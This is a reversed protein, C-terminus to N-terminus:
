KYDQDSPVRSKLTALLATAVELAQRTSLRAYSDRKKYGPGIRLEIVSRGSLKATAVSVRTGRLDKLLEMRCGKIRNIRNEGVCVRGAMVKAVLLKAFQM